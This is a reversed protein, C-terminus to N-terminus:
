SQLRRERDIEIVHDGGCWSNALFAQLAPLGVRPERVETVPLAARALKGLGPRTQKSPGPRAEPERAWLDGDQKPGFVRALRQPEPAQLRSLLDSNREEGAYELRGLTERTTM